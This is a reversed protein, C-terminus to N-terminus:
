NRLKRTKGLQPKKKLIITNKTGTCTFNGRKFGKSNIISKTCIGISREGNTADVKKICRCLKERLIKEAAIKMEKTTKPINKNYYTLIKIYDKSTLNDIM